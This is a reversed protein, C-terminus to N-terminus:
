DAPTFVRVYDVRMTAPTVTPGGVSASSSNDLVIYQPANGTAFPEGGVLRGDYYFSMTSGDWDAAFSHWGPGVNATGGPGGASTHVHFASGGRLGEMVDVEGNAPSIQGDSWFAPWNDITTGSGPVFVRAELVAPGTFDYGHGAGLVEPNSSVLAGNDASLALNLTGGSESVNASSYPHTESRNVPGTIGTGFWGPQWVGPDLATGNFEDDFAPAWAGPVGTPGPPASPEPTPTPGPGPNPAPAASVTLTRSTLPHWVGGVEYAGFETYNGAAFARARSVYSYSGNITASHSGPFDLNTGAGDRVAVTIAQVAIRGTSRVTLVAQSPVGATLTAPTLATGTVTVGAAGAPGAGVLGGAALVLASVAAVMSRKM